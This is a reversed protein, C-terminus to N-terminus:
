IGLRSSVKKLKTDMLLMKDKILGVRNVIETYAKLMISINKEIEEIKMEISIEKNVDSIKVVKKKVAKKM